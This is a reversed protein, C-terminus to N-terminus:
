GLKNKGLAMVKREMLEYSISALILPLTLCCAYLLVNWLLAQEPHYYPMIINLILVILPIHIMYVGYSIQGLYNIFKNDLLFITKTNGVMNLIIVAFNIAYLIHLSESKHGAFMGIILILLNAWQVWPKFIFHLLEERKEIFLYAAIGGIALAELRFLFLFWEINKLLAIQEISMPLLRYSAAVLLKLAVKILALVLFAKLYRNTKKILFSWIVYFQEEVGLSWLQGLGIMKVAFFMQFNPLHFLYLSLALFYHEEINTSYNPVAFWKNNAFIFYSAFILIYYLPWIRLIRNKYFKKLDITGTRNKENLLIYTIVFGSIVFFLTMAGQGIETLLYFHLLSPAGFLSKYWEIHCLLVILMGLFRLGDLGKLHNSKQVTIM